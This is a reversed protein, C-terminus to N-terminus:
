GGPFYSGGNSTAEPVGALKVTVDRQTGDASWVHLTVTEGPRRGPLPDELEAVTVPRGDMTEVIDSSQAANQNPGPGIGAAKAPPSGVFGTVAVGSRPVTRNNSRAVSRFAADVQLGKIGVRAKDSAITEAPGNADSSSGGCGPLAGALLLVAVPPVLVRLGVTRM